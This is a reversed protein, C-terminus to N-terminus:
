IKGLTKTEASSTTRAHRRKEIADHLGAVWANSWWRALIAAVLAALCARGLATSWDCGGALSGGAGILFGIVSGLIMFSKM